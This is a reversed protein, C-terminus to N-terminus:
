AGNETSGSHEEQQAEDATTDQRAAAAFGMHLCLGAQLRLDDSGTVDIPVRGATRQGNDYPDVLEFRDPPEPSRIKVAEIVM